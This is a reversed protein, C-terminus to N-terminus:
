GAEDILKLIRETWQKSLEPDASRRATILSTFVKVGQVRLESQNASVSRVTVQVDDASDKETKVRFTFDWGNGKREVECMGDEALTPLRAQLIRALANTERDLVVNRSDAANACLVLAGLLAILTKKM